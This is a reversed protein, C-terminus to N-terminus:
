LYQKIEEATITALRDAVPKFPFLSDHYPNLRTYWPLWNGKFHTIMQNIIEDTPLITTAYFQQYVNKVIMAIDFPGYNMAAFVQCYKNTYTGKFSAPHEHVIRAVLNTYEGHGYHDLHERVWHYAKNEHHDEHTYLDALLAALKLPTPHLGFVVADEVFGVTRMVKEWTEETVHEKVYKVLDPNIKSFM